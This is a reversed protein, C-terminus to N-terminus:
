ADVVSPTPLPVIFRGKFGKGRLVKVLDDAIHWSLLLAYDPQEDVLLQEDLIPIRTDAMHKGLKASSSIELVCEITNEDLGVYNILTSARAAAGVAFIRAGDRKLPALLAALDLKSQVVRERFDDLASGDSFGAAREAALLEGVSPQLEHRGPKGAYVRISGGHTSIRRVDFIELGHESLLASLSEVTYFRLHEHYITDYQLTEVLSVLYHSESIFVGDDSLLDVIGDVVAGVEPIHAFTNTSTILEATGVDAKLEAALGRTFFTMRSPIGRQEAEQAALSPEVGLVRHGAAQFNELLTGDNSGIDVVLSGSPLDLVEAVEVALQRFNERLAKTGGTRYPFEPPFVVEPDVITGLQALTCSGCRLMGLPYAVLETPVHDVPRLANAPPVYGLFLVSRLDASGCNQCVETPRSTSTM